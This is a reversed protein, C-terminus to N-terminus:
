EMTFAPARAAAVFSYASTELAVRFGERSTQIFPETLDERLAFAVSHVMFDLTGYASGLEGRVRELDDEINLDCTFMQMDPYDATLKAAAGAMRENQVGIGVKAGEAQVAKAVAWGISRENAVGFVIGKKGELLSM